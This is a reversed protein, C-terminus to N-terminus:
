KRIEIPCDITFRCGQELNEVKVNGNLKEFVLNFLINLGLGSGGSGRKTTVFPDFVKSILAEPIGEGDDEYTLVYNTGVQKIAISINGTMQQEFGHIHSNMLLNTLIQTWASPYTRLSFEKPVDLNIQYKKAKFMTRVTALVENILQEINCILLSDSSQNVAVSKFSKILDVARLLNRQLMASTEEQDEFFRELEAKTLNGQQMQKLTETVGDLMVANATVSIGLPTNIEHAIGAVLQGLAVMKESQVLNAQTDQLRTLSQELEQTRQKIKLELDQNFEHLRQESEIRLQFENKILLRMENLADVVSDLEDRDDRNGDLKLEDDLKHLNFSSAYEEIKYVHRTIFWYVISVIAMAALLTKVFQTLLIVWAKQMLKDYIEQYNAEVLLDGIKEGRYFIEFHQSKDREELKEGLTYNTGQPTSLDVYNIFPLSQIGALQQEVAKDQFDWLNLALSNLHSAEIAIFEQELESLDYRYDSYLQVTTALLSLVSSVLLIFVLVKRGLVHTLTLHEM